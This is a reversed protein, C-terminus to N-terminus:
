CCGVPRKRLPKAAPLVKVPKDLKRTVRADFIAPQRDCTSGPCVLLLDVEHESCGFYKAAACRAAMEGSPRGAQNLTTSATRAEAGHGARAINTNGLRVSVTVVRMLYDLRESRRARYSRAIEAKRAKHLGPAAYPM